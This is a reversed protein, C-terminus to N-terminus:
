AHDLHLKLEVSSISSAVSKRKRDPVLYQFPQYGLSLKPFGDFYRVSGKIINIHHQDGYKLAKKRIVYAQDTSVLEMQISISLFFCFSHPFWILGEVARSVVVPLGSDSDSLCCKFSEDKLSLLFDLEVRPESRFVCM